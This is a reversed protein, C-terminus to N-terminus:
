KKSYIRQVERINKNIQWSNWKVHKGVRKITTMINFNYHVLHKGVIFLVIDVTNVNRNKTKSKRKKENFDSFRSVYM